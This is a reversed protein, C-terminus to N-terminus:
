KITDICEWLIERFLNMAKKPYADKVTILMASRMQVIDEIPLTVLEPDKVSTQVLISHWNGTKVLELATPIDNIEMAFRPKLNEQLFARSIFHDSSYGKTAILLPLNAMEQLTITKKHAFPSHISSVMALPSEFLLQYSYLPNDRAENFVLVMDMELDELEDVLRHSAGFVAQIQIHPYRLAFALIAKSFLQQLGLTVGIVLTGTQLNNLDRLMDRGEESKKVSQQAYVAFLEGAETLTIRKGVRNFLLTDLEIELQKIQQSLTSQTIHLAKAAETFNNLERAKLFYKLQRLEM